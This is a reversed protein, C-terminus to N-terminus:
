EIMIKLYVTRAEEYAYLDKPNLLLHNENASVKEALKYYAKRFDIENELSNPNDKEEYVKVNSIQEFPKRKVGRVSKPGSNLLKQILEQKANPDKICNQFELPKSHLIGENSMKIINTIDRHTNCKKTVRSQYKSMQAKIGQNEIDESESDVGMSIDSGSSDEVRPKVIM